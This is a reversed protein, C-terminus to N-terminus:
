RYLAALIRELLADLRGDLDYTGRALQLRIALIKDRRVQQPEEELAIARSSLAIGADEAFESLENEQEIVVSM